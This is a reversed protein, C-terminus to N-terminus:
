RRAEYTFKQGAVAAEYMLGGKAITFVAIGDQYHGASVASNETGSASAGSGATSASASAGATIAIASAQAGLAFKGSEFRALDQPTQFFLIESYAQGGLQFGLSVQTVTTDGVYRGQEYLRGRGRAGGVFFGGKAITPFVAYGYSSKFFQASASARRFLAVTHTYDDAFATGTFLALASVLLCVGTVATAAAEFRKM